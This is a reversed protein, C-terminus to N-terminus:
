YGPNQKFNPDTSNELQIAPIPYLAAQTTWGPKISSLVKDAKGTRNLDFWRHGWEAFLERLRENELATEVEELNTEALAEKLPTVGARDRLLDLDNIAGELNNLKMRAEARILYQEALRLVVYYESQTAAQKVRYKYPIYYSTEGVTWHSTWITKRKDGSEFANMLSASLCAYQPIGSTQIFMFGEGTNYGPMVPVLHWIAEKSEKLFVKELDSELRFNESLSLVQSAMNEAAQWDEKYLYVRALLATAAASGPRTRSSVSEPKELLQRALTLDNLIHDFVEQKKQRPATSNVQYATSTLFPIDGFFNLLYFHFFARLFRAEGELQERTQRNISPNDSIGELLANVQYIYNYATNWLRDRLLQNLPTLRNASFEELFQNNAYHVMEDASLGGYLTVAGNAFIANNGIMQSYIGALASQASVNDSFVASRTLENKPVSITLFDSCAASILVPLCLTVWLFTKQWRRLAPRSFQSNM